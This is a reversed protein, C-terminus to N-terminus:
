ECVRTLQGDGDFQPVAAGEDDHRGHISANWADPGHTQRPDIWTATEFTPTAGDEFPDWFSVTVESGDAITTPYGHVERNTTPTGNPALILM